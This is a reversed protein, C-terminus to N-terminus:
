FTRTITLRAVVKDFFSKELFDNRGKKMFSFFLWFAETEDQMVVLFRSLVDNMGQVYGLEKDVAAYSALINRM